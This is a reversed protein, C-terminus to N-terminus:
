IMFIRQRIAERYIYYRKLFIYVPWKIFFIKLDRKGHHVYRFLLLPILLPLTLIYIYDKADVIFGLTIKPGFFLYQSPYMKKLVPWVSFNRAARLLSSVHWDMAQHLVIAEPQRVFNIGAAVARIAIESDENGVRFFKDEFYGIQKFVTKRYAINAGMPWQAGINQVLREPFYGRYKASRYFVQGIVFGVQAQAFGLLLQRLWNKDAICDDDTFAVIDHGAHRIGINRSLSLGFNKENNIIKIKSNAKLTNLYDITSDTSGDNVIIIEFDSFDLNLLAPISKKLYDVRNYTCIVISCSVVM